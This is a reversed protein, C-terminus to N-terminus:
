VLFFKGLMRAHTKMNELRKEARKSYEATNNETNNFKEYKSVELSFNLFQYNVM